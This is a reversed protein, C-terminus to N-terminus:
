YLQFYGKVVAGLGFYYRLFANFSLVARFKHLYRCQPSDSIFISLRDSDDMQAVVYVNCFAGDFVGCPRYPAPALRPLAASDSSSAELGGRGNM